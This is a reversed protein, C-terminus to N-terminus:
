PLDFFDEPLLLPARRCDEAIQSKLADLGPFPQEDRLRDAFYLRLKKGYLDTDCKLLHTELTIDTTDGNVTPRFGINCIGCTRYLTGGDEYEAMVVYVGHKPTLKGHPMRQNATPFGLTHGLAKGHEVPAAISYPHCLLSAATKVDGEAILARIRSSSLPAGDAEFPPIVHCAIGAERASAVLDEATCSAGKGYRFNFGCLIASPHHPAAIHERFFTNGDLSRLADFDAFLAYDAGADRLLTCKEDTDTLVGMQQSAKPQYEFTWVCVSAVRPKAIAAAERILARHGGHVGDFSGLLLVCGPPLSSVETRSSLHIIRM